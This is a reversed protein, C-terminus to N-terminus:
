ILFFLVKQTQYSILNDNQTAFRSKNVMAKQPREKAALRSLFRVRLCIYLRCTSRPIQVVCVNIIGRTKSGKLCTLM